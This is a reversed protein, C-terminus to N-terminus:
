EEGKAKAIIKKAGPKCPIQCNQWGGGEQVKKTADETSTAEIEFVDYMHNPVLVEYKQKKKKM